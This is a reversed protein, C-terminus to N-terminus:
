STANSYGRVLECDICEFKNALEARGTAYAIEVCESVNRRVSDIAENSMDPLVKAVTELVKTRLAPVIWYSDSDLADMLHQKIADISAIVEAPGEVVEVSRRGAGIGCLLDTLGAVSTDKIPCESTVKITVSHM